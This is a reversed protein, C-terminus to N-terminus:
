LRLASMGTQPNVSSELETDKKGAGCQPSPLGWFGCVPIDASCQCAKGELHAWALSPTHLIPECCDDLLPIFVENSGTRFHRLGRALTHVPRVRKAIQGGRNLANELIPAFFCQGSQSSVYLSGLYFHRSAARTAAADRLGRSSKHERYRDASWKSSDKSSPSGALEGVYLVRNADKGYSRDFARGGRDAKLITAHARRLKEPPLPGFEKQQRPASKM